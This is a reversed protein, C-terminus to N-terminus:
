FYMKFLFKGTFSDKFLDAKWLFCVNTKKRWQSNTKKRSNWARIGLFLHDGRAPARSNKSTVHCPIESQNPFNSKCSRSHESQNVGSSLYWTIEMFWYFSYFGIKRGPCPIKSQNPFNSKCSRSHESQNVKDGHVLWVVLVWDKQTILNYLFPRDAWTRKMKQNKRPSSTSPLLRALFVEPYTIEFHQIKKKIRPVSMPRHIISSHHSSEKDNRHMLFLHSFWVVM